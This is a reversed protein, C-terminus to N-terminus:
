ILKTKNCRAGFNINLKKKKIKKAIHWTLFWEISNIRYCINKFVVEMNTVPEMIENQASHEWDSSIILYM